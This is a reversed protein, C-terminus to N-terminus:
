APALFFVSLPPSLSDLGLYLCPPWSQAPDRKAIFVSAEKLSPNPPQPKPGAVVVAAATKRPPAVDAYEGDDDQDDNRPANM